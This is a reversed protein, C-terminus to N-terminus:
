FRMGANAYWSRSNCGDVCDSANFKEFALNIFVRKTVFIDYGVSYYDGTFNHDDGHNVSYGLRIDQYKNWYFRGKIGM